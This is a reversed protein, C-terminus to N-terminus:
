AELSGASIGHPFISASYTTSDVPTNQVVSFAEACILPPAFFTTIEAGAFSLSVGVNTHPTLRSFYVFSIVTTDLADQVVFQKAGRVFTILSLNPITSPSIVVTWEVVLM